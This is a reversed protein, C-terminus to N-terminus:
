CCFLNSFPFGLLGAPRDAAAEEGESAEGKLVHRCECSSEIIVPYYYKFRLLSSSSSPRANQTKKKTKKIFIEGRVQVVDNNRRDVMAGDLM